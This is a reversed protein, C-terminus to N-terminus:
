YFRVTIQCRRVECHKILANIGGLCSKLPPFIDSSEKAIDLLVKAVDIFRQKKASPDDAPKLPHSYCPPTGVLVQGLKHRVSRLLGNECSVLCLVPTTRPILHRSLPPIEDQPSLPPVETGTFRRHHTQMTKVSPGVVSQSACPAIREAQRCAWGEQSASCRTLVCGM